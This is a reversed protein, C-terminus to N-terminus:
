LMETAWGTDVTWGSQNIPLKEFRRKADVCDISREDQEQTILEKKKSTYSAIPQDAHGSQGAMYRRLNEVRCSYAETGLGCSEAVGATAGAIENVREPSAPGAFAPSAILVAGVLVLSALRM